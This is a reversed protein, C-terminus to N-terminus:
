RIEMGSGMAKEPQVFALNGEKDEAMLIMGQSEVGRLKKPALNTLVSVMKGPLEETSYHEAIGSVITRTEKGLDVSLKLLKDTKEIKEASLIKGTRIDLKLFDEFSINGKANPIAAEKVQNSKLKEIQVEITEDEIKQFLIEAKNLKHGARLEQNSELNLIHNIKNSTNPLFNSLVEASYKAIQLAIHIIDKAKEPDTKVVKWPEEDALFKNGIRAVNMADALAERFRFREINEESKQISDEIQAILGKNDIANNREPVIGDYYKHTLVVARNIFNGLIAVLENNVRAQYDKWTFEADKTEPLISTLVYRLEDKKDPFDSLYEHLWVAYNRSTSFKDGELNLFENAPVNSPLIFDGHAKLLIPFIICHFVINDKGIFHLLKTDSDKWYDEWNKDNDSAWQKTASIYGIPADLWVYLVKGDAGEIPVKVGWDLDRTMARAQLGSEIWSRCQGLVHKKWEEPNHKYVGDLTGKNIWESVWEEHKDMPLYWHKTSKKVPTKGSLTSKPNILDFPSLSSGCNECQDGYAKDHSCKPCTGSIYRDALFQQHEEDFYQESEKEVFGGKDNMVTFFDQATQHHIPSSTRHYIDFSIGLQDFANKIQTHYTDIIDKPNKGEKKARLTIAAGHEDSGCVWVVDKGLKRLHRVYIDAPLYAGCIHGLHLPGNAYPLASTILYRKAEKV